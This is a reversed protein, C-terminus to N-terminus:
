QRGSPKWPPEKGAVKLWALASFREPSHGTAMIIDSFGKGRLACAIEEGSVGAGLDSDIFLPTDLPLAQAAAMLDGPVKYARLEVGAARAAARWTLAVLDDDLLVAIRGREAAGGGAVSVPVLGALSKPLLRVGRNLCAALVQPEDYRSTVLVTRGTVGLEAALDLGTERHGLLEFDFLCVAPRVAGNEAFWRRLPDPSSFNHTKIGRGGLGAAEFREKWVRHIGADDDLIVVTDGPSFELDPVFWVPPEALPLTVSVETGKGPESFIALSGGWAEATACAHYLGLGSGGAKGHTGGRRGLLGLTEPPIGKGDDRVTM